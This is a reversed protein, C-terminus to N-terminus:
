SCRDASGGCRCPSADWLALQTTTAARHVTYVPKGGDLAARYAKQTFHAMEPSLESLRRETM